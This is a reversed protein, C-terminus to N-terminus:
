RMLRLLRWLKLWNWFGWVLAEERYSELCIKAVLRGRYFGFLFNCVKLTCHCGKGVIFFSPMFFFTHSLLLGLICCPLSCMSYSQTKLRTHNTDYSSQCAKFAQEQAKANAACVAERITHSWRNRGAGKSVSEIKLVSRWFEGRWSWLRVCQGKLWEFLPIGSLTCSKAGWIKRPFRWPLSWSKTIM